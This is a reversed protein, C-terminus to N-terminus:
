FTFEMVAFGLEDEVNLYSWLKGDKFFTFEPVNTLEPLYKEGLLNLDSDYVFLYVEARNDWNGESDKIPKYAFRFFLKRQDDWILERFAVQNRQKEAADDFAKEDTFVNSEFDGTKKKPVLQHDFEVLRLSDKKYDYEYMDSTVSSTIHLKERFTRLWISEGSRSVKNPLQLLLTFKLAQLMNPLEISKGTKSNPDIKLLRVESESPGFRTLAFMLKEDESLTVGNTILGEEDVGLGEIEKFNFKLNKEKQGNKAYIGVNIMPSTILFRDNMLSKIRPPNFGVANPGEKSFPYSGTLELKDLDIEHIVTKRMDFFYLTKSDSSVSSRNIGYGLDIIEGKPNVLVTDVTFTLNELINGSGVKESYNGGCSILLPFLLLVTLKKM